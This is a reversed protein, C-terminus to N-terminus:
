MGGGRLPRAVLFISKQPEKESIGKRKGGLTHSLYLFTIHGCACKIADSIHFRRSSSNLVNKKRIHVTKIASRRRRVFLSPAHSFILVALPYFFINKARNAFLDGIGM